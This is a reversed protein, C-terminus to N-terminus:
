PFPMYQGLVLLSLYAASVGLCAGAVTDSPFHVGLMVRSVGVLSAWIFFLWALRPVFVAVISAMLFAGATHGSPLSFKDSPTLAYKAGYIQVFPRERKISKKLIFYIPLEVAFALLACYLFKLGQEFHLSLAIFGLVVYLYGDGSKSIYRFCQIIPLSSHYRNCWLYSSKDVYLFKDIVTVNGKEM